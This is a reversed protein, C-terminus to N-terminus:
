GHLSFDINLSLFRLNVLVLFLFRMLLKLCIFTSLNIIQKLDVWFNRFSYEVLFSITIDEEESDGGFVKEM